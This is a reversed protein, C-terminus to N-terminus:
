IEAKLTRAEKVTDAIEEDDIAAYDAILRDLGSSAEGVRGANLLTDAKHLLAEAVARKLYTSEDAGYRMIVEDYCAIEADVERVGTDEAADEAIAGLSMGKHILADAAVARVEDAPDDAYRRLAEEYCQMEAGVQDADGLSVAKFMLAKAAHIRVEPDQSHSYLRSVSDYGALEEDGRGLKNLYNARRIMTRAVREMIGEGPDFEYRRILDDCAEVAKEFEELDRHAQHKTTLASVIDHSVELLHNNGYRAVLADCGAIEEDHRGLDGLLWARDLMCYSMEAEITGETVPSFRRIMEDYCAIADPLRKMRRLGAAKLRMARVVLYRLQDRTREPGGTTLDAFRGILLDLPEFAAQGRGMQGMMRGKDYWAGALSVACRPDADASPLAVAISQDLLDLAREDQKLRYCANAMRELTTARQHAAKAAPLATEYATLADAYREDSYANEGADKLDNFSKAM